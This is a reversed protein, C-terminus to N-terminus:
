ISTQSSASVKPGVGPLTCLAASAETYPAQRLSKLWADGGGPKAQLAAVSGVIFKARCEHLWTDFFAVTILQMSLHGCVLRQEHQEARM